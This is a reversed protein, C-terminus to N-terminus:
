EGGRVVSVASSIDDLLEWARCRFCKFLDRDAAPCMCDTGGADQLYERITAVIDTALFVGDTM